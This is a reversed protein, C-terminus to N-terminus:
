KKVAVSMGDLSIGDYGTQMLSYIEEDMFQIGIGAYICYSGSDGPVTLTVPIAYTEYPEFTKEEGYGTAIPNPPGESAPIIYAMDELSEGGLVSLETHLTMDTMNTLKYVIEINDGAKYFEPEMTDYGCTLSLLALKSYRMNETETKSFRDYFELASQESADASESDAAAEGCSSFLFAAMCLVSFFINKINKMANMTM